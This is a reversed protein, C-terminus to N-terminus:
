KLKLSARKAMRPDRAVRPIVESITPAFNVEEKVEKVEPEESDGSGECHRPTREARLMSKLHMGIETPEAEKPEMCKELMKRAESLERRQGGMVELQRKVEEPVDRPPAPRRTQGTAEETAKAIQGTKILRLLKLRRKEHRNLDEKREVTGQTAEVDQWAPGKGEPRVPTAEYGRWFQGTTSMDVDAEKRTADKAAVTRKKRFRRGRHGKQGSAGHDNSAKPAESSEPPRPTLAAALVEQTQQKRIQPNRSAGAENGDGAVADPADGVPQLRRLDSAWSYRGAAPAQEEVDTASACRSAGGAAADAESTQM